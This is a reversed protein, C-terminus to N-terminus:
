TWSDVWRWWGWLIVSNNLKSFVMFIMWDLWWGVVPCGCGGTKLGTPLNLELLAKDSCRVGLLCSFSASLESYRVTTELSIGKKKKGERGWGRKKIM